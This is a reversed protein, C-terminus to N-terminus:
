HRASAPLSLPEGSQNGQSRYATTLFQPLTFMHPLKGPTIGLLLALRILGRMKVPLNTVQALIPGVSQLRASASRSVQYWDIGFALYLMLDIPNNADDDDDDNGDADPGTMGWASGSSAQRYIKQGHRARDWKQQKKERENAEECLKEVGEEQFFRQLASALPIRPFPVLGVNGERNPPVKCVDCTSGTKFQDASTINYFVHQCKVNSCAAHVIIEPQNPDLHRQLGRFTRVGMATTGSAFLDEAGDEIRLVPQRLLPNDHHRGIILGYRFLNWVQTLIFQIASHPVNWQAVLAMGTGYMVHELPDLRKSEKLNLAPSPLLSLDIPRALQAFEEVFDKWGSAVFPKFYIENSNVTRESPSYDMLDDLGPMLPASPSPPAPTMQPARLAEEFDERLDFVVSVEADRPETSTSQDLRVFDEPLPLHTVHAAESSTSNPPPPPPLSSSSPIIDGASTSPKSQGLVAQEQEQRRHLRREERCHARYERLTILEAKDGKSCV